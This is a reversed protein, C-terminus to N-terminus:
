PLCGCERLFAYLRQFESPSLEEARRQLSIGRDAAQVAIDSASLTESSGLIGSLANSLMKRRQQFALRVLPQVTRLATAALCREQQSAPFVFEVVASQVNPRPFFCQPSVTFLLRPKCVFAAAVTLVGYEKTRPKAVLREAVEKQMMIVARRLYWDKANDDNDNGNDVGAKEATAVSSSSCSSSCSSLSVSTAFQEFLWLLIDSTIYYPINGVVSVARQRSVSDSTASDCVLNSHLLEDIAVSLVDRQVLHLTPVGDFRRALYEVARQDFEVAYLACVGTELLLATLVGEGPGIEVVIDDAVVQVANVIKRAINQDHLFNQGLSKKPAIHPVGHKKRHEDNEKYESDKRSRRQPHRCKELQTNPM